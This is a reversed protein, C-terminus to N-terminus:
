QVRLHSDKCPIKRSYRKKRLIEMIARLMRGGDLPYVPLLNFSGQVLGILAAVPFQNALLLLMLSCVPGAAACVLEQEPCLYGTSIEAGSIGIWIERVPVRCCFLAALHGAEHVTVAALWGFLWNTPLMLVCVAGLLYAGAAIRIEPRSM